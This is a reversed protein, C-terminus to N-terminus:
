KVNKLMNSAYSHASSSETMYSFLIISDNGPIFLQSMYLLPVSSIFWKTIEYEVLVGGIKNWKKNIWIQTKKINDLSLGQVELSDLNQQVFANVWLWQDYKEAVLLSDKYDIKSWTEQYLEIIESLDSDNLYVKELKVNGDYKVSFGSVFLEIENNVNSSKNGCWMSLLCLLGLAFIWIKKVVKYM